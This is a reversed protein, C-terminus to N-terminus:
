RLKQHWEEVRDSLAEWGADLIPLSESMSITSKIATKMNKRFAAVGQLICGAYREINAKSGESAIRSSYIVHAEWGMASMMEIM